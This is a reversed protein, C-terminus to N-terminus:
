DDGAVFYVIAALIAAALLVHIAAFTVHYAAFAIVWAIALASALWLLM